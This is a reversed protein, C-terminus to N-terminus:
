QSLFTEKYYMFCPSSSVTFFQKPFHKVSISQVFGVLSYFSIFSRASYVSYVYFFCKTVLAIAFALVDKRHTETSQM